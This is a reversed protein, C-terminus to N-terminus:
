GGRTALASRNGALALRAAAVIALADHAQGRAGRVEAQDLLALFEFAPRQGAISLAQETLQAAADLDRRELALGARVRLQDIAFLHQDFGLRRADAAAAAATDAAKALHGSQFWALALAGPLAVLKVPEPIGPLALPAAAERGRAPFDGLFAYATWLTWRFVA